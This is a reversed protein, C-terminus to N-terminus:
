CYCICHLQILIKRLTIGHLRPTCLTFLSRRINTFRLTITRLVDHKAYAILPAFADLPTLNWSSHRSPPRPRDLTASPSPSPELTCHAFSSVGIAAALDWSGMALEDIIWGALLVRRLSRWSLMVREVVDTVTVMKRLSRAMSPLPVWRWSLRSGWLSKWTQIIALIRNNRAHM